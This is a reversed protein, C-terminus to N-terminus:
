LRVEHADRPQCRDSTTVTTLMPPAIKHCRSSAKCGPEADGAERSRRAPHIRRPANRLDGSVAGFTLQQPTGWAPRCPRGGCGPVASVAAQKKKPRTLPPTM